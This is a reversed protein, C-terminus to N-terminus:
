LINKGHHTYKLTKLIENISLDAGCIVEDSAGYYMRIRDGEVLHGNTFVVNGFFGTLEYPASTVVFPQASRALVISPDEPHLLLAGLCYRHHEDAGHYIELWGEPTRIPAAGAGVRASDWMGKRSTAICKHNGWHILDPSEALWIYNGGLSPSSPRHLAYYKGNIKEEFIACDKNHPPLIMGKRDFQKWNETRIMGVGVGYESVETYTLYYANDIRTVRCDEIGYAELKGQGFIPDYGEPEHFHIGDDSCVLRLHSLTTLYDRGKYSIVRPDSYDLDPDAKDFTLIEIRGTENYVPFSIRGAEQEPMEAVRLLLWIKNNYTFVGPNLLCQIQMGPMSPQLDGPRLLPNQDFRRALDKGPTIITNPSLNMYLRLRNCINM